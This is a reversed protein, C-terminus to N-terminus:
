VSGYSSIRQSRRTRVKFCGNIFRLYTIRKPKISGDKLVERAKREGYFGEAGLRLRADPEFPVTPGPTAYGTTAGM